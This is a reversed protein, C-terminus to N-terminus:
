SNAKQKKAARGTSNSSEVSARPTGDGKMVQCISGACFQIVGPCSNRTMLKNEFYYVNTETKRLHEAMPLLTSEYKSIQISYIGKKNMQIENLQLTGNKKFGLSQIQENTKPVETSMYAFYEQNNKLTFKLYYNFNTRAKKAIEIKKIEDSHNISYSTCFQEQITKNKSNSCIYKRITYAIYRPAIRLLNIVRGVTQQYTGSFKAVTPGVLIRRIWLALMNLIQNRLACLEIKADKTSDGLSIPLSNMLDSIMGEAVGLGVTKLDSGAVDQCISWYSEFITTVKSLPIGSLTSVAKSGWRYYAGLAGIVALCAMEVFQSILDGDQYCIDDFSISDLRAKIETEKNDKETTEILLASEIAEEIAKREKEPITREFKEIEREEAQTMELLGHTVTNPSIPRKQSGQYSPDMNLISQIKDVKELVLDM